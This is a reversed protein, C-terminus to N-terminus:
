LQRGLEEELMRLEEAEEPTLGTGSQIDGYERVYADQIREKAEVTIRILNNLQEMFQEDSQATDLSVIANEMRDGERDSVNGVAGGTKSMDRISQLTRVFVQNKIASLKSRADQAEGGPIWNLPNIFGSLGTMAGTGPEGILDQVQTILQDAQAVVDDMRAKAPAAEFDRGVEAEATEKATTAATINEPQDQPNLGKVFEASLAGPNNPDVVGYRNGLNITEPGRFVGMFRAQEEPSLGQLYEYNTIQSTQNDGPKAKLVQALAAEQVQPHQFRPMEGQKLPPAAGGSLITALQAMEKKKLEDNELESQGAKYDQHGAVGQSVAHALAQAWHGGSPTQRLQQALLRRREINSDPTYM